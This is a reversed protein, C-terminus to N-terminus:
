QRVLSVAYTSTCSGGGDGTITIGEVGNASSGDAKFTVSSTISYNLGGESFTCENNHVTCGESESSACTVGVLMEVQGAESVNVVGSPVAGCTGSTEVFTSVYTGGKTACENAPIDTYESSSACGGFVFILVILVKM